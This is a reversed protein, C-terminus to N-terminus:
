LKYPRFKVELVSFLHQLSERFGFKVIGNFLCSFYTNEAPCAAVKRGMYFARM